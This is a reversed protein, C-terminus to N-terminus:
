SPWVVGTAAFATLAIVYLAIQRVLARLEARQHARHLEACFNMCRPDGYM